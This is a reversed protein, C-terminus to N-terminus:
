KKGSAMKQLQEITTPSVTVNWLPNKMQSLTGIRKGNFTFVIGRANDMSLEFYQNGQCRLRGMPPLTYEKIDAGDIVVRVWVSEVAAGELVLTDRAATSDGSGTLFASQTTDPQQKEWDKVVDSFKIEQASPNGSERQIWYIISIFAILMLLTVLVLIRFQHSRKPKRIQQPYRIATSGPLNTTTVQSSVTSAIRGQDQKPEPKQQEDSQEEGLGLYETYDKVFARVYLEPMNIPTGEEIARLFQKNIRTASAVEELSLGKAERATKLRAGETSM